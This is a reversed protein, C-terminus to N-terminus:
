YEEKGYKTPNIVLPILAIAYIKGDYVDYSRPSRKVILDCVTDGLTQDALLLAITASQIDFVKQTAAARETQDVGLVQAFCNIVVDADFEKLTVGDMGPLLSSVADSIRLGNDTLITQYVTDHVAAEYFPSSIDGASAVVAANLYGFLAIEVPQSM